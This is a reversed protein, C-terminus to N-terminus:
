VLTIAWGKVQSIYYTLTGLTDPDDQECVTLNGDADKKVYKLLVAESTSQKLSINRIGTAPKLKDALQLLTRENLPCDSLICNSYQFDLSDNEIVFTIDELSTCGSVTNYFMYEYKDSFPLVLSKLSTCSQFTSYYIGQDYTGNFLPNDQIKYATMDVHEVASCQMFLSGLSDYTAYSLDVIPFDKVSSWGQFNFYKPKGIIKKIPFETVSSPTYIGCMTALTVQTGVKQFSYNINEWNPLYLAKRDLRNGGFCLYNM